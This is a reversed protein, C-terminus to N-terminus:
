ALFLMVRGLVGFVRLYLLLVGFKQARVIKFKVRDGRAEQGKTEQETARGSM